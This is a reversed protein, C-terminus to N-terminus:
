NDETKYEGMPFILFYLAATDSKISVSLDLFFCHQACTAFTFISYSRNEGRSFGETSCFLCKTKM